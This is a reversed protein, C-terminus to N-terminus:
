NPDYFITQPILNYLHFISKNITEVAVNVIKIKLPRKDLIRNNYPEVQIGVDHNKANKEKKVKYRKFASKFKRNDLARSITADKFPALCRDSSQFVNL